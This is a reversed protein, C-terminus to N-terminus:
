AAAQAENASEMQPAVAEMDAEAEGAQGAWCRFDAAHQYNHEICHPLMAQLKERGSNATM